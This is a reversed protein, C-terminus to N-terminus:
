RSNELKEKLKTLQLTVLVALATVICAYIALSIVGSNAPLFKKVYTNVVEQIFSNWALAAVLSFGSTALTLMQQVIEISAKNVRHLPHSSKKQKSTM